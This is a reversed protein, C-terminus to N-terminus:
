GHLSCILARSSDFSSGGAACKWQRLRSGSQLARWVFDLTSDASDISEFASASATRSQGGTPLQVDVFLETDLWLDVDEGSAGLEGSM